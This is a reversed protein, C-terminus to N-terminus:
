MFYRIKRETATIFIKMRQETEECMKSEGHTFGATDYDFTIAKSKNSSINDPINGTRGKGM